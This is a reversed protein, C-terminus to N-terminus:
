RELNGKYIVTTFQKNGNRTPTVKNLNGNYTVQKLQMNSKGKLM